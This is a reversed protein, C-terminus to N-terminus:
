PATGPDHVGLLTPITSELPAFSHVDQLDRFIQFSRRSEKLNKLSKAVSERERQMAVVVPFCNKSFAQYIFISKSRKQNTKKKQQCKSAAVGDGM